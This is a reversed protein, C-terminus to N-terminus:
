RPCPGTSGREVLVYELDRVIPPGEPHAIRAYLLDMGVRARAEICPDATTLPPSLFPSFRENGISAISLDEPIRLGLDGAIGYVVLALSDSYTLLATPRDDRRLAERWSAAHGPALTYGPRDFGSDECVVRADGGLAAREVGVLRQRETDSRHGHGVVGIRRHGREVFHRGIAHGVGEEDVCVADFAGREPAGHVVLPTRGARVAHLHGLGQSAGFEAVPWLLIGDARHELMTAVNAVEREHELSSDAILIQYDRERGFDEVLRIYDVYSPNMLDSAVIGILQTRQTALSRAGRNPIYRLERVADLIRDRKEPRVGGRDNLVRSVAAISTESLRAIDRITVAM